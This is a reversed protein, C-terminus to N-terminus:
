IRFPNLWNQCRDSLYSSFWEWATGCVGFWSRLCDLLTTHNIMDFAASLDLLMLAVPLGKALSLHIQNKISLLATETSHGSKYASQHPNDLGNRNIHEILQSSAVREVLKSIFCLGSVPRYNKLESRALSPKKILPTIVAQKFRGPFHGEALSDNVLLTISPLLIDICDKLLFTPIPDLQCSKTPSKM